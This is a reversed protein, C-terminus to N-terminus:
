HYNWPVLCFHCVDDCNLKFGYNHTLAM